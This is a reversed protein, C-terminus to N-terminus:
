GLLGNRATVPVADKRGEKELLERCSRLEVKSDGCSLAGALYDDLQSSAPLSFLSMGQQECRLCLMTQNNWPM